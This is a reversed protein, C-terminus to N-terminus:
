RLLPVHLFIGDNFIILAALSIKFDSSDQMEFGLDSIEFQVTLHSTWNPIESKLNNSICSEDKM